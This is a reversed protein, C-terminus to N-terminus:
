RYKPDKCLNGPHFQAPSREMGWIKNGARRPNTIFFANRENFYQDIAVKAEDVSQYNSNHIIARAMGSFISEIVNLFQARAPLPAVEVIPKGDATASLNNQEIKAFLKKSIHWSAADWSLYIKKFEKYQEILIDMMKIMEDTNKKESYFHTVQNRSLELAATLILCGKSKQWQQVVNVEDPGILKKGGKIKVSFPGFEDISFFLEDSNLNSLIGQLHELKSSYDPDNSTLVTRSKAWKYGHSKLILSLTRPGITYGKTKLVNSLIPMTWTTRNIGYTTPPEHILSFISNKIEDNTMVHKRKHNISFLDDLGKNNYISIASRVTNRSVKLSKAISHISIGKLHSLIILTRNRYTIRKDLLHRELVNYTIEDPVILKLDEKSINQRSLNDVWSIDSTSQHQASHDSKLFRRGIETRSLFTQVILPSFIFAKGAYLNHLLELSNKKNSNIIYQYIMELVQDKKTYENDILGRVARYVTSYSGDYDQEHVLFNYIERVTFQREPEMHDNARILGRIIPLYKESFSSYSKTIARLPPSENLLIKKITNRSIGTQNSILRIPTGDVYRMRRIEKWQIPDKYMTDPGLLYDLIFYVIM